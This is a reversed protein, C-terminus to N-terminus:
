TPIFFQLRLRRLLQIGDAAETRAPASHDSRDLMAPKDSEFAIRTVGDILASQAAFARSRRFEVARGFADFAGEIGLGACGSPLGYTPFEGERSDGFLDM